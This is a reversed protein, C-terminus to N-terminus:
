NGRNTLCTGGQIVAAGNPNARVASELCHALGLPGDKDKPNEVRLEKLLGPLGGILNPLRAVFLPLTIVDAHSM